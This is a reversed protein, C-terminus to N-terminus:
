VLWTVYEPDLKAVFDEATNKGIDVMNKMEVPDFVLGGPGGGL